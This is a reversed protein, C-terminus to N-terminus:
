GPSLKAFRYWHVANGAFPVIVFFLGYSTEDVQSVLFRGGDHFKLVVDQRGQLADTAFWRKSRVQLVGKSCTLEKAATTFRATALTKEKGSVSIDLVSGDDNLKLDVREAQEWSSNPGLLGLALSPVAAPPPAEGKDAYRGNVSSCNSARSAPLPEWSSPYRHEAVTCGALPVVVLIVLWHRM